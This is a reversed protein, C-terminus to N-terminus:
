FGGCGGCGGCGGGCGGGGSGGGCGGYDGGGSYGFDVVGAALAWGSSAGAEGNRSPPVTGRYPKLGNPKRWELEKPMKAKTRIAEPVLYTAWWQSMYKERLKDTSSVVAEVPHAESGITSYIPTNERPNKDNGRKATSTNREKENSTNGDGDGDGQGNGHGGLGKEEKSLSSSSSSSSLGALGECFVGEVRARERALETELEGRPLEVGERWQTEAVEAEKKFIVRSNEKAIFEAEHERYMQSLTNWHRKLEKLRERNEKIYLRIGIFNLSLKPHSKLEERDLAFGVMMNALSHLTAQASKEATEAEVLRSATRTKSAELSITEPNTEFAKRRASIESLGAEYRPLREALLSLKISDLPDLYPEHYALIWARKTADLGPSRRTTPISDDHHVKKGVHALCYTEYALPRLQHTHWFLDIDVTPVLVDKSSTTMLQLFKLYRQQAHATAGATDSVLGLITEIFGHTGFQRLPADALEWVEVGFAIQCLSHFKRSDFGRTDAYTTSCGPCALRAFGVRFDSWSAMPITYGGKNQISPDSTCAFSLCRFGHIDLVGDGTVRVHDGNSEFAM